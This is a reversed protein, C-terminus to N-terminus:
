FPDERGKGAKLNGRNESVGPTDITKTNWLKLHYSFAAPTVGSREVIERASIRGAKLM